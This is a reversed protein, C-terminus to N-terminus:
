LSWADRCIGLLEAEPILRSPARIRVLSPTQTLPVIRRRGLPVLGASAGSRSAYAYLSAVLATFSYSGTWLVVAVTLGPVAGVPVVPGAITVPTASPPRTTCTCHCETDHVLVSPKTSTAAWVTSIMGRAHGAVVPRSM